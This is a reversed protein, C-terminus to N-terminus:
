GSPPVDPAAAGFAVGKAEPGFWTLLALVVAVVGAVVALALSWNDGNTEALSRAAHALARKFPEGPAEPKSAM